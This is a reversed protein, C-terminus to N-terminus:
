TDNPSFLDLYAFDRTGSFDLATWRKAALNGHILHHCHSCAPGYFNEIAERKQDIPVLPRVQCTAGNSFSGEWWFIETLEQVEAPAGCLCQAHTRVYKFLPSQRALTLLKGTPPWEEGTAFRELFAVAIKRGQGVIKEATGTIAEAKDEITQYTESSAFILLGTEDLLVLDAPNSEVAPIIDDVSELPVFEILDEGKKLLAEHKDALRSRGPRLFLCSKGLEFARETLKCLYTTKGSRMCGGISLGDFGSDRQFFGEKEMVSIARDVRPRVLWDPEESPLVFFSGEESAVVFGFQGRVLVEVNHGPFELGERMFGPAPRREETQDLTVFEEAGQWYLGDEKSVLREPESGGRQESSLEPPVM